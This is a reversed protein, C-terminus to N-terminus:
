VQAAPCTPQVGNNFAAGITIDIETIHEEIEHLVLPSVWKNVPLSYTREVWNSEPYGFMEGLWGAVDAKSHRTQKDELRRMAEHLLQSLTQSRAQWLAAQLQVKRLEDM